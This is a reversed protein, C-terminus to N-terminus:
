QSMAQHAHCASLDAVATPLKLHELMVSNVAVILTSRSMSLADRDAVHHHYHFTNAKTM